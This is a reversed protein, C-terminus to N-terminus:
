RVKQHRRGSWQRHSGLTSLRGVRNTMHAGPTYRSETFPMRCIYLSRRAMVPSLPYTHAMTELLQNRRICVTLMPGLTSWCVVITQPLWGSGTSSVWGIPTTPHAQPAHPLLLRSPMNILRIFLSDGALFAEGAGSSQVDTSDSLIITDRNAYHSHADHDWSGQCYVAGITIANYDLATQIDSYSTPHTACSTCEGGCADAAWKLTWDTVDKYWVSDSGVTTIVICTDGNDLTDLYTPMVDVYSGITGSNTNDGGGDTDTAICTMYNLTDLPVTGTPPWGAVTTASIWYRFMYLKQYIDRERGWYAASSVNTDTFIQEQDKAELGNITKYEVDSTLITDIRAVTVVTCALVQTWSPADLQVMELTTDSALVGVWEAYTTDDLYFTWYAPAYLAINFDLNEARQIQTWKGAEFSGGGGGSMSFRYPSVSSLGTATLTTIESAADGGYYDLRTSGDYIRLTNEFMGGIKLAYADSFASDGDFSGESALAWSTTDTAGAYNIQLDILTDGMIKEIQYEVSNISISDWDYFSVGFWESGVGTVIDSGNTVACDGSLLSTGAARWRSGIVDYYYLGLGSACLFTSSGGTPTFWFLGQTQYNNLDDINGMRTFGDRMRLVTHGEGGELILNELDSSKAFDVGVVHDGVYGTFGLVRLISRPGRTISAVLFIASLLVFCLVVRRNM